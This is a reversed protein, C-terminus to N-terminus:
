FMSVFLGYAGFLAMVVGLLVMIVKLSKSTTAKTSIVLVIGIILASIFLTFSSM